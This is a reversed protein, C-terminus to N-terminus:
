IKQVSLALVRFYEPYISARESVFKPLNTDFFENSITNALQQNVGESVLGGELVHAWWGKIYAAVKMGFQRSDKTREYEAYFYDIIDYSNSSVVQIKENYKDCIDIYHSKFMSSSTKLTSQLKDALNYKQLLNKLCVGAVEHYFQTEKEQYPLIPDDYILVTVFLQGNTKLEKQRNSIFSEWHKEFAQVWKEGWESQINKSNALFFVNEDRPCPAQPIIQATMNSYAIDVSNNPFVQKTFDKGAVMIYIDDYLSLGQSVASIALGHHNEPLDNLIIQITMRPQIRRVANIITQLPLVSAAGTACGYEAIVFPIDTQDFRNPDLNHYREVCATLDKLTTNISVNSWDSCSENYQEDMVRSSSKTDELTPIYETSPTFSQKTGISDTYISTLDTIM